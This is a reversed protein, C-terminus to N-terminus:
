THDHAMQLLRDWAAVRTEVCSARDAIQCLSKGQM